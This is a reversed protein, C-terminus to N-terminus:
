RGWIAKIHDLLEQKLMPMRDEIKVRAKWWRGRHMWAQGGGTADGVVYTPYQQGRKGTANNVIAWRSPGRKKTAWRNALQGTRVYKQNPRMPPYPESKLASRTDKAWRGVIPDFEKAEAAILTRLNNSVRSQGRIEMSFYPM